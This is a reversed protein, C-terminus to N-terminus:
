EAPSPIARDLHFRRAPAFHLRVGENPRLKQDPIGLRRIGEAPTDPAVVLVSSEILRARRRSSRGLAAVDDTTILVSRPQSDALVRAASLVVNRHKPDLADLARDLVLLGPGTEAMLAHSVFACIVRSVALSRVRLDRLGGSVVTMQAGFHLASEGDTPDISYEGRLREAWSARMQQDLVPPWVSPVYGSRGDAADLRFERFPLWPLPQVPLRTSVWLVQSGEILAQSALRSVVLSRDRDNTPLVLVGANMGSTLDQVCGWNLPPMLEAAASCM